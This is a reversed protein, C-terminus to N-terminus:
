KLGGILTNCKLKGNPFITYGSAISYVKGEKENVGPFKIKVTIRAGFKDHTRIEYNGNIFNEKSLIYFTNFFKSFNHYGMAIIWEAKCNKTYEEKEKYGILM